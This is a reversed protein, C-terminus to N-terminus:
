HIYSICHQCNPDHLEMLMPFPLYYCRSSFLLVNEEDKRMVVMMMMMLTVMMMTM